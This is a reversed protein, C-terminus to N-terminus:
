EARPKKANRLSISTGKKNPKAEVANCKMVQEGRMARILAESVPIEKTGVFYVQSYEAANASVSILSLILILSKM